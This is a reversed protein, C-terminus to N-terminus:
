LLERLYALEKDAGVITVTTNAGDRVPALSFGTVHVGLKFLLALNVGVPNAVRRELAEIVTKVPKPDHQKATAM